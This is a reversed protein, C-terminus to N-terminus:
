KFGVGAIVIGLKRHDGAVSFTADVTMSVAVSSKSSTIPPVSIVYSGPRKFTEEAIMEGEVFMQVQRAPAQTPIYLELRLPMQHDADEAVGDGQRGDMWRRVVRYYDARRKRIARNSGPSNRIVSWRSRRACEDIPGSSIEIPLLGKDSVSSYASRGDLSILRLPIAPRIETQSIPALQANVPLSLALASSVVIDGPQVIQDKPMALAGEQELYWRLGWEANIWVRHESAEKKLSAAFERYADWHQYNVIALSISLVMQTVLGVILIPRPCLQVAIIAVPGAIPLLYRASGAFFILAAGGFFILIWSTIFDLRLRKARAIIVVGILPSVIWMLHILLAGASRLKNGQSQLHYSRM